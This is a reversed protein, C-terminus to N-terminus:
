ASSRAVLARAQADAHATLPLVPELVAANRRWKGPEPPSITWASLPLPSDLPEDYSWGLAACIRGIEGTPDTILRHYDTAHWRRPDLTALDALLIETTRSWQVAVIEAVPRGILQRWGPVLLFSWPHGTWGPLDPYTVCRGTLWGELMSGLTEAADRYLYIFKADPYAAALFPLRLANRPTKELLTPHDDPGPPRGDRNRWQARFGDSLRAVIQPTADAALLRSSEWGRNAARLEAIGEIIAHSEGGITWAQPSRALVEYLLTSGARPTSM